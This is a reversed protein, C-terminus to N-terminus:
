RVGLVLNTVCSEMDGVRLAFEQKVKTGDAYEAPTWQPMNNVVNLLIEDVKEDEASWFVHADCVQGEEDISFKVAALQYRKFIDAPIKDIAEKKLYQKLAEQDGAYKAETEPIPRFTFGMERPENNKLNNEPLYQVKVSIDTNVDANNINNKQEQTLRDNKGVSKRTKGDNVTLVEVSLYEKVWEAEYRKNIDTLTEVSKLDEKTLSIYSYIPDVECALQNNFNDQTAAFYPFAFAVLLLIFLKNQINKM